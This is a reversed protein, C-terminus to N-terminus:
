SNDMQVAGNSLEVTQAHTGNVFNINMITVGGSNVDFIRALNSGSITHYQGDITM